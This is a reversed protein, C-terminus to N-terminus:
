FGISGGGTLIIAINAFLLIFDFEWGMKDMAGFPVKWKTIKMWIAGIMVLSLLLASLQMYVGFVIGLASLVEVIGLPIVFGTPLGLMASVMKPKMLKPVGHYLFILAVAIRLLLLGVDGFQLLQEFM